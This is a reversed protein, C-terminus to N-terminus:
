GSENPPELIQQLQELARVWLKRAAEASRDLRRGIEEFSCREYNRWQIVQRSAQPLQELAQRLAEDRERALAHSSPSEAPSVLANYLEDLPADALAVERSVQRKAAERYHWTVNALNNLLIRRMWALLEEETQGRFREFDRQAELLSEQVVDSAGVKGRLDPDLQQNAILLLYQRCSELLEGLAERSGDRAAQILRAAGQPTESRGPSVM